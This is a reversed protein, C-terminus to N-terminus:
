SAESLRGSSPGGASCLGESAITGLDLCRLMREMRYCQGVGSLRRATRSRRAGDSPWRGQRDAQARPTPWGLRSAHERSRSQVLQPPEQCPGKSTPDMQPRVPHWCSRSVPVTRYAGSRAVLGQAWWRAAVLPPTQLMRHDHAEKGRLLRVHWVHLAGKRPRQLDPVRIQDRRGSDDCDFLHNQETFTFTDSRTKLIRNGPQGM